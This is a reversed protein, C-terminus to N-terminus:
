TVQLKQPVHIAYEKATSKILPYEIRIYASDDEYRTNITNITAFPVCAIIGLYLIENREHVGRVADFQYDRWAVM